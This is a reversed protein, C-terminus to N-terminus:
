FLRGIRRRVIVLSARAFSAAWFAQLRECERAVLVRRSSSDVGQMLARPCPAPPRSRNSKVLDFEALALLEHFDDNTLVVLRFVIRASANALLKTDHVHMVSGKKGIGVAHRLEDVMFPRRNRETECVM